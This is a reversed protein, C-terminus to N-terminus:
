QVKEDIVGPLVQVKEDIVGTVGTVGPLVQVKEDIVGMVRTDVLEM